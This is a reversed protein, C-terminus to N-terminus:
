ILSPCESRKHGTTACVTCIATATENKKSKPALRGLSYEQIVREEYSTGSLPGYRRQQELDEPVVFNDCVMRFVKLTMEPLAAEGRRSYNVNQHIYKPVYSSLAKREVDEPVIVQVEEEPTVAKAKATAATAAPPTFAAKIGQQKKQRKPTSQSPRAKGDGEDEDASDYVVRGKAKKSAGKRTSRPM